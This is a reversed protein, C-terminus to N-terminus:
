FLLLSVLFLTTRRRQLKWATRRTKLIAPKRKVVARLRQNQLKEAVVAREEVAEEVVEAAHNRLRLRHIKAPV